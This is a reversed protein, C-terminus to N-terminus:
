RVPPPLTGRAGLDAQLERCTMQGAAIKKLVPGHISLGHCAMGITDLAVKEPLADFSELALCSTIYCAGEEASVGFHALPMLRNLLFAAQMVEGIRGPDIAFPLLASAHLLFTGPTNKVLEIGGPVLALLDEVLQIRMPVLMGDWTDATVLLFEAPHDDSAEVHVVTYDNDKLLDSLLSVPTPDAM